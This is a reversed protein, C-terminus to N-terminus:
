VEPETRSRQAYQRKSPAESDDQLRGADSSSRNSREIKIRKSIMELRLMLENLIKTVQLSCLVPHTELRFLYQPDSKPTKRTISTKTARCNQIENHSLARLTPNPRPQSARGSRLRIGISDKTAPAQPRFPLLPSRLSSTHSISTRERNSRTSSHKTIAPGTESPESERNSERNSNQPRLSPTSQQASIYSLDKSRLDNSEFKPPSAM